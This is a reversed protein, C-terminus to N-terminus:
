ERRDGGTDSRSVNMVKAKHRCKMFVRTKVYIQNLLSVLFMLIAIQEITEM